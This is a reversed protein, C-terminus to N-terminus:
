KLFNVPFQFKLQLFNTKHASAFPVDIDYITQQEKLGYNYELIFDALRSSFGIGLCIFYANKNVVHKNLSKSVGLAPSVFLTKCLLYKLGMSISLHNFHYNNYNVTKGIQPPNSYILKERYIDTALSNFDLEIYQRFKVSWNKQFYAGSSWGFGDNFNNNSGYSIKTENPFFRSVGGTIGLQIKRQSYIPKAIFLELVVILIVIKKKM